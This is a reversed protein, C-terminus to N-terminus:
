RRPRRTIAGTLFEETTFESFWEHRQNAVGDHIVQLIRVVRRRASRHTLVSAVAIPAAVGGVIGWGFLKVWSSRQM